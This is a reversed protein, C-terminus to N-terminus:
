FLGDPNTPMRLMTYVHRFDDPYNASFQLMEGTTPHPFALNRAHLMMRPVEIQPTKIGSGYLEDGLIAFNFQRLHARIQHTIGTLIKVEVLAGSNFYKLVNCISRASKGNQSVRTRHERDANIELPLQIDLNRWDPVPYILCHYIKEVQRDRFIENLKRHSYENRALVMLGSTEKDLRHVMWLKKYIPELLRRVHPLDKDYGDPISLLGAPKDIVVIDQDQYRAKPINEPM